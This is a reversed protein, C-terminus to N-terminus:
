DPSVLRGEGPQASVGTVEPEADFSVVGLQGFQCDIVLVGDVTGGALVLPTELEVPTAFGAVTEDEAAGADCGFADDVPTAAGLGAEDVAAAPAFVGEEVPTRREEVPAAAGDVLNDDEAGAAGDTGLVGAEVKV